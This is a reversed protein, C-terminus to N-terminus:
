CRAATSCTVGCPTRQNASLNLPYYCCLYMIPIRYDAGAAHKRVLTDLDLQEWGYWLKLREEAGRM